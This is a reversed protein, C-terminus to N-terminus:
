YEEFISMEKLLFPKIFQYITYILVIMLQPMQCGTFNLKTEREKVPDFIFNNKDYRQILIPLM